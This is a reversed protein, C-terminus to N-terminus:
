ALGEDAGLARLQDDRVSGIHDRLASEARDADGALLAEAIKMHEVVSKELRGPIRTTLRGIRTVHARINDILASIRYNTVQEFLLSDFDEVAKELAATRGSTALRQSREMLSRLRDRADESMTTAAQRAAWTEVLERLEYMEVLDRRTYSSVVAGKFSTLEALGEYELRSLAERVPTKSVGLSEAIAAERLPEGPPLRLEIIASRLEEVVWDTMKTRSHRGGLPQVTHAVAHGNGEQSAARRPPVM